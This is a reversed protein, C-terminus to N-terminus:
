AAHEQDAWWLRAMPFTPLGGPPFGEQPDMLVVGGVVPAAFGFFIHQFRGGLERPTAGVTSVVPRFGLAALIACGLAAVDDCDGRFKGGVGGRSVQRILMAPTRIVEKGRPDPAFIQHARVWHYLAVPNGIKQALTRVSRDQAADQVVAWLAAVTQATGREGKATRGITTLTGDDQIQLILSM